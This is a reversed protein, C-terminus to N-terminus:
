GDTVAHWLTISDRRWERPDGLEHAILVPTGDGMEVAELYVDTGFAHQLAREVADRDTGDALLAPWAESGKHKLDRTVILLNSLQRRLSHRRPKAPELNSGAAEGGGLSLAYSRRPM